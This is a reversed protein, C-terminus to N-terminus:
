RVSLNGIALRQSRTGTRTDARIASARGLKASVSVCAGVVGPTGVAVKGALPVIVSLQVADVSLTPTVPYVTVRQYVSKPSCNVVAVLEIVRVPSRGDSVYRNETLARSAAPLTEGDVLRFTVIGGPSPTGGVVGPVGTADRTESVASVSVQVGERSLTRMSSCSMTRM